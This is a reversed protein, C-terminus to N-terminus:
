KSKKEMLAKVGAYEQYLVKTKAFQERINFLKEQSKKGEMWGMLKTMENDTLPGNLDIKLVMALRVAEELIEKREKKTM